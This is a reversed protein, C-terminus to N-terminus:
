TNESLAFQWLKISIGQRPAMPKDITGKVRVARCYFIDVPSNSYQDRENPDLGTELLHSIIDTNETLAAVHLVTQKDSNILASVNTVTSMLSELLCVSDVWVAYHLASCGRGDMTSVMFGHALMLDINQKKANFVSIPMAKTEPRGASEEDPSLEFADLVAVCEEISSEDSAYEFVQRNPEAERVYGDQRFTRTTTVARVTMKNTDEEPVTYIPLSIQSHLDDKVDSDDDLLDLSLNLPIMQEIDIADSSDDSDYCLSKYSVNDDSTDSSIIMNDPIPILAPANPNGLQNFINEMDEESIIDATLTHQSDSAPFNAMDAHLKDQM